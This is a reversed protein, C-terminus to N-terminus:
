KQEYLKVASEMLDIVYPNEYPSTPDIYGSCGGISDVMQWKFDESLRCEVIVVWCDDYYAQKLKERTRESLHGWTDYFDADADSDLETWIRVLGKALLEMWRNFIKAARLAQQANHGVLMFPSHQRFKRYLHRIGSIDITDM